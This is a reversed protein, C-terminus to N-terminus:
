NADVNRWERKLIDFCHTNRFKGGRYTERKIVGSPKFGLTEVFKMAIIEDEDIFVTINNTLLNNFIEGILYPTVEKAYGNQRNKPYIVLNFVIFHPDWGFDYAVHGLLEHTEKNFIGFGRARLPDDWIEFIKTIDREGYIMIHSNSGYYDRFSRNMTMYRLESSNWVELLVPIHKEILRNCYTRETELVFTM